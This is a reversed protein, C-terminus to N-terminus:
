KARSVAKLVARAALGDAVRSRYPESAHVDGLVDFGETINKTAASVSAKDPTVGILAAEAASARYARDAVGTVGIKASAIAGSEDLTVVAAIGAIAYGSAANALKEYAVGTRPAPKAVRIATVVDDPSLATTFISIFFDTAPTSFEGGPGVAVIEADLALVGAPFDAAPDAHAIAGGITGRARVQRDGITHAIEALLPAYQAILPDHAVDRHTTMAGIVLADGADVVGSLGSIGAIDILHEPNALRLKMTPLLSHGGAILKAGDGHEQLLAIAEAVSSARHYAFPNPYM